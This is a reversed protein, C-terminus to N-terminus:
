QPYPVQIIFTITIVQASLSITIMFIIILIISISNEHLIQNKKGGGFEMEKKLPKM